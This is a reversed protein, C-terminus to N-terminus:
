IVSYNDNIKFLLSYRISLGNYITSHIHRGNTHMVTHTHQTCHLIFMSFSNQIQFFFVWCVNCFLAFWQWRNSSNPWGIENLNIVSWGDDALKYINNTENRNELFAFSFLRSPAFSFYNFNPIKGQEHRKNERGALWYCTWGFMGNAIRIAHHRFEGWSSQFCCFFLSFFTYM